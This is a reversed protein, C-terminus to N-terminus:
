QFDHTNSRVELVQPHLLPTALYESFGQFYPLLVLSLLSAFGMIESSRPFVVAPHSSQEQFYPVESSLAATANAISLPIVPNDGSIIHGSRRSASTSAILM